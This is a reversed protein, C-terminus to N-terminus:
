RLDYKSLEEKEKNFIHNILLQQHEEKRFFTMASLYKLLGKNSSRVNKSMGLSQGIVKMDIGYFAELDPKHLVLHIEEGKYLDELLDTIAVSHSQNDGEVEKKDDDVIVILSKKLRLFLRVFFPIYAKGNPSYIETSNGFKNKISQLAIIDSDGEVIVISRYFLCRYFNESKITQEIFGGFTDESETIGLKYKISADIDMKKSARIHEIEGASSIFIQKVDEMSLSHTKYNNFFIINEIDVKVISLLRSNHTAIRVIYGQKNLLQFFGALLKIFEEDLYNEPEDFYIFKVNNLSYKQFISMLNYLKEQGKSRQKFQELKHTVEKAFLVIEQVNQKMPESEQSQNGIGRDYDNKFFYTMTSFDIQVEQKQISFLPMGEEDILLANGEKHESLSQRLKYTKGCGNVGVLFQIPISTDNLNTM